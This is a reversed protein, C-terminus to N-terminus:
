RAAVVELRSIAEAVEADGHLPIAQGLAGASASAAVAVAGVQSATVGDGAVLRTAVPGLVLAFVRRSGAAEADLVRQMMLLASQEMSVLGSSPVPWSSSDGVILAYAGGSTMRPLCARAVAMHTTALGVFASQWDSEAIEWLKKGAWWGGVSAVV